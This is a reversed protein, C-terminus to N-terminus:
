GNPYYKEALDHLIGNKFNLLLKEYATNDGSKSQLPDKIDKYTRSLFNYIYSLYLLKLAKEATTSEDEGDKILFTKVEEELNINSNFFPTICSNNPIDIGSTYITLIDQIAEMYNLIPQHQKFFKGIIGKVAPDDLLILIDKIQQGQLLETIDKLATIEIEDIKSEFDTHLDEFSIKPSQNNQSTEADNIAVYSLFKSYAKLKQSSDLLEWNEFFDKSEVVVKGDRIEPCNSIVLTNNIPDFNLLTLRVGPFPSTTMIIELTNDDKRLCYTESRKVEVLRATTDNNHKNEHYRKQLYPPIEPEFGFQEFIWLNLATEYTSWALHSYLVERAIKLNIENLILICDIDERRMPNNLLREQRSILEEINHVKLLRGLVNLPISGRLGSNNPYARLLNEIASLVQFNQNISSTTFSQLLDIMSIKQSDHHIMKKEKAQDLPIIITSGSPLTEIAEGTFILTKPIEGEDIPITIENQNKELPSAFTTQMLNNMGIILHIDM